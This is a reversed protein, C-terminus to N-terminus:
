PKGCKSPKEQKFVEAKKGRLKRAATGTQMNGFMNQLQAQAGKAVVM